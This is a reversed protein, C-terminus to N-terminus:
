LTVLFLVVNPGSPGERRNFFDLSPEGGRTELLVCSGNGGWGGDSHEEDGGGASTM